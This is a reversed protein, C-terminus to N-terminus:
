TWNLILCVSCKVGGCWLLLFLYVMQIYGLASLACSAPLCPHEPGSQTRLAEHPCQFRERRLEPWRHFGVIITRTAKLLLPLCPPGPRVRVLMGVCGCVRGRVRVCEQMNCKPVYLCMHPHELLQPPPFPSIHMCVCLRSGEM